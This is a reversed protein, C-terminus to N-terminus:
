EEGLLIKAAQEYDEEPEPVPIKQDSEAYLRNADVPDIASEYLVGDCEIYYGEDSYAIVLGPRYPEYIVMTNRREQDYHPTPQPPM